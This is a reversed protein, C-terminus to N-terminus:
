RAKASHEASNYVGCVAEKTFTLERLETQVGIDNLYCDRGFQTQM